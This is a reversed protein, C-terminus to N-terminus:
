FGHMGMSEAVASVAAERLGMDLMDEGCGTRVDDSEALVLWISIPPRSAKQLM